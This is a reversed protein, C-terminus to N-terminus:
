IQLHLWLAAASLAYCRHVLLIRVIKHLVSKVIQNSFQATTKSFFIKPIYYVLSCQLYVSNLLRFTSFGANFVRIAIPPQFAPLSTKELITALSGRLVCKARSATVNRRCHFKSPRSRSQSYGALLPPTGSSM